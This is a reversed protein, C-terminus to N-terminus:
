WPTLGLSRERVPSDLNIWTAMSFGVLVADRLNLTRLLTDLDAAFTDYDYGSGV